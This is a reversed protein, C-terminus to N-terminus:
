VGGDSVKLGVVLRESRFHASISVQSSANGRVLSETRAQLLEKNASALLRQLTNNEFMQKDLKLKTSCLEETLKENDKVTDELRKNLSKVKAQLSKM